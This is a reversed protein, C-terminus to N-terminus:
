IETIHDRPDQTAQVLDFLRPVDTALVEPKSRWDFLPGVGGYELAVIEPQPWTGVRIQNMTHAALSWDEGTMAFHDILCGHKSCDTTGTIHVEKLHDTPLGDLYDIPDLGLHRASILAHATDLLFGCGIENVVRNLFGPEIAPRPILYDPDLDWPVNELIIRDQGFREIVLQLSNMVSEEVKEQWKPDCTDQPMRPFDHTHPAAHVNIYRTDTAVLIEEIRAWDVVQLKGLRTMLPFHVYVPLYRRATEVVEPWDPCKFMEFAIINRQLLSAAQPSFNVAFHM